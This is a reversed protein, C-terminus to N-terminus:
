QVTFLPDWSLPAVTAQGRFSLHYTGSIDPAVANPDPGNWSQNVRDDAVLVTADSTPWGNADQTFTTSNPAAQWGQAEKIADVFDFNVNIGLPGASLLSRSELSEFGLRDRLRARLRARGRNHASQM